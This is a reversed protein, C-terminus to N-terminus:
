KGARDDVPDFDLQLEKPTEYGPDPRPFPNCSLIAREVARDYAPWGSAKLQRLSGSIQEGTPLLKISYSAQYDGRKVSAPVEFVIYQRVCAAVRATYRAQASGRLSRKFNKPDGTTTGSRSANPDMKASLRALEQERMAKAIRQREAKEQAAKRAKEQAIRKEEALRKEEQAKLEAAIRDAEAKAAAAEAKEKAIRAEEAKREEEALRAEEQAREAEAKAAEEAKRAEEALRKEEALREQALREQEQREREMEKQREAEIAAEQQRQIEEARAREQALRENEARAAEQAKRAELAVREAEVQEAQARAQAEAELRRAEEAQAAAEAQAKQQAQQLDEKPPEPPTAPEEPAQEEAKLPEPEPDAPLRQAVGEPDTGGSVDEPAWLEAYVAEDATNWQVAMFLSAVLAGHVIISLIAAPVADKRDQRANAERLEDLRREVAPGRGAPEPRDDELVDKPPMSHLEDKNM